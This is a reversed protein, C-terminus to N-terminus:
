LEHQPPRAALHHQLEIHRFQYIAGVQRLVGRRHADVLFGMLSWPLRHQLALWALALWYSPWSADAFSGVMGTLIMTAIGIGIGAVPGAALGIPLGLALGFALGPVLGLIVVARRDRWLTAPPSAAAKLDLPASELGFCLGIALGALGAMFGVVPGTSRGLTIGVATGIVFGFGYGLGGMRIGRAPGDERKGWVLSGIMFGVVPWAILGAVVGSALGRWVGFGLGFGLAGVLGPVLAFVFAPVAQRLQWWAFDPDASTQQLHRALFVLWPQAEQATWRAAVGSRYAAPIFADFLYSEVAARDALDSSCLEAPDRLAGALEGPRPNYIVRALGVMLPTTLAQGVPTQTGLAALVPTWRAAAAPGAADDRLYGSVAHADLPFLQIVAASRLHVETGHPQRVADHYQQTRCTLVLKEGPRLADNINVVAAGRIDEPIEDLGDLVPLILGASLLAAIRSDNETGTPAPASLAPHDISLETALWDRLDKDEPNWSAISFLVPVPSGSTRRALLDLVLRVMLMTKGSGPEGLVVLRGTPIRALVNVLDSGGGALSEPDAAWTDAPPPLPWGAGSRALRVLSDWANALFGDAAAWCVPLPYPDNLRRTAAEAEWQVGVALALQDAVEALSLKDIDTRSNRGDRYVAWTLWLVPLGLSLSVLVTVAAVDLHHHSRILMLAAVAPAIFLAVAIM